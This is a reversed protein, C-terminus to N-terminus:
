DRGPLKRLLLFLSVHELLRGMIESRFAMVARYKIRLTKRAGKDPAAALREELRALRAAMVEDCLQALVDVVNAGDPKPPLAAQDLALPDPEGEDDQQQSSRRRSSTSTVFRQVTIPIARFLEDAEEDDRGVEYVADLTATQASRRPPAAQATKPQRQKVPSPRAPHRTEKRRRRRTPRTDALEQELNRELELTTNGEEPETASSARTRRRHRGGLRRAAEADDIEEAVSPEEVVESTDAATSAAIRSSRRRKVGAPAEDMPAATTMENAKRKRLRGVRRESEADKDPSIEDQGDSHRPERSGLPAAASSKRQRGRNKGTVKDAAVPTVTSNVSPDTAPAADLGRARRRGRRGSEAAVEGEPGPGVTQEVSSPVRASRATKRTSGAATVAVPTTLPQVPDSILIASIEDEGEDMGEIDAAYSQLRASRPELSM